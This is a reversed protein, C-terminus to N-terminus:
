LRRPLLNVLLNIFDLGLNYLCDIRLFLPLQLCEGVYGVAYNILNAPNTLSSQLRLLLLGVNGFQLRIRKHHM